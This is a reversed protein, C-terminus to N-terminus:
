DTFAALWFSLYRLLALSLLGVTIPRLWPHALDVRRILIRLRYPRPHRVRDELRRWEIDSWYPSM